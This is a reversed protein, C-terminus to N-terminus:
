KEPMLVAKVYNSPDLYKRALAQLHEGTMLSVATGTDTITALSRDQMGRTVIQGLWYQNDKLGEEQARRWSERLKVLYTEPVPADQLWRVQELVQAALAEERGPECGFEVTIENAPSPYGVLSGRVQVGYSGSLDERIVERLRIDLLSVLSDFLDYDGEGIADEGGFAMFVRSKPEIGMRLADSRIGSPFAIGSPQAEEKKGASPLPALWTEVLAKLKGEDMSGVFVFTFDGADAFRGRFSSEALDSRMAAVLPETLNSRRRPDGYELRVRLAPFVEEPENKRSASLTKLRSYLSSWAASDFSPSSFQLSVLQVLTELDAVSSSGYLGEYSEDIWPGAEVTKGALKKQLDTATFGNLGSMRAWSAAVAASPFDADPVLSVGGKSWASFAIENAKFGTPYVIVHAGNSLTWRRMGKVPLDEEAVVSGKKGSTALPRGLDKETYRALATEPKWNQWLDLLAKEDPIDTRGEPATVVLIKGRGDYWGDIAASVEEPTIGPVIRNYLERSDDPSLMTVDYLVDRTLSGIKLSSPTKGRELWAQEVSDLLNKKGRELEGATVGYKELRLLEELLETFAPVFKGDAPVLGLFSFRAPKASQQNGAQAGLMVAGSALTKESLRDNFVSYALNQVIERRLEGETRVGTAPHQELIKVTPYPLEPDRVVLVSPTKRPEISYEPRVTAPVSAPITGLTDSIVRSLVGPDADGVVMVSMLEPRYWKRYFDTVRERSVTRVVSPDGIPLREAYRSGNYLVPVERDVVRGDAGRGLRWEEIVVGREKELEEPEFSVASAWDRLVLLSKQLIEPSDAPIELMYVTEDFSTYANVEPGFTMGISEFYDVLENKRFHETGNFAMHEVMHAVGKQDDDELVSGARVALRLLLRNAPEPNRLVFWSMGNPLTGTVVSGDLSLPKGSAAGATKQVSACSVLLLVALAIGISRLKKM